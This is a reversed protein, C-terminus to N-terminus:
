QVIAHTQPIRCHKLTQKHWQYIINTVNTVIILHSGLGSRCTSEPAHDPALYFTSSRLFDVHSVNQLKRHKIQSKHRDLKKRFKHFVNSVGKLTRHELPCYWLQFTLLCSKRKRDSLSAFSYCANIRKKTLGSSFLQHQCFGVFGASSSCLLSGFSLTAFHSYAGIDFLKRIVSPSQFGFRSLNPARTDVELINLLFCRCNNYEYVRKFPISVGYM